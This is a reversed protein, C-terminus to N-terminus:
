IIKKKQLTLLLDDVILDLDQIPGDNRIHYDMNIHDLETESSHTDKVVYDASQNRLVKIVFGGIDVIIDLENKFRIDPVFVVLKDNDPLMRMSLAWRKIWYDYGCVERRYDTGYGQLILRFNDKHADIFAPTVECMKSVDEKLADAFAIRECSYGKEILRTSLIKAVTDKGSKKKGAFGIIIM